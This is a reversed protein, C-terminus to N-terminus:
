GFILGDIWLSLSFSFLHNPLHDRQRHGNDFYAATGDVASSASQSIILKANFSMLLSSITALPTYTMIEMSNIRFKAYAEAMILVVLSTWGTFQHTGKGKGKILDYQEWLFGTQQYNQVINRILNIRLEEYIAKARHQYPGNELKPSLVYDMLPQSKFHNRAAKGSDTIWASHDKGIHPVLRLEPRELVERVLQRSAHGHVTEVEKWKLQVKEPKTEKDLLEEISCMCDVALFMWFALDLHHEEGIPHSARPYDDLGSSLTKPNLERVTRNDRGHWYYSSMHNGSQATNFWQFWVELRVFARELFLSIQSRDM